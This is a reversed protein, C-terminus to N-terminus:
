EWSHDDVIGVGSIYISTGLKFITHTSNTYYEPSGLRPPGKIKPQSHDSKAQDEGRSLSRDSLHFLAFSNKFIKGSDQLKSVAYFKCTRQRGFGPIDPSTLSASAPAGYSDQRM